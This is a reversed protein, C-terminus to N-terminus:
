EPPRRDIVTFEIKLSEGRAGWEKRGAYPTATLTYRGPPPMWAYSHRPLRQGEISPDGALMYPYLGEIQNPFGHSIPQMLRLPEGAPNVGSLQFYVMGVQQPECHAQINLRRTPLAALDIVAGSSLREFGAIPANSDADVLTFSTVATPEAPDLKVLTARTPTLQAAFGAATDVSQRTDRATVRVRGETVAVQTGDSETSVALRTGLVRAEGHATLIRWETGRKQPAVDGYLQGSSLHIIKNAGEHALWLRTNGALVFFTSEGRLRIVASGEGSTAVIDGPQLESAGVVETPPGSQPILTCATAGQLYAAPSQAPAAVTAVNAAPGDSVRPGPRWRVYLAAAMAVCAALALWRSAQAFVWRRPPRVAPSAPTPERSDAPGFNSPVVPLDMAAGGQLQEYRELMATV